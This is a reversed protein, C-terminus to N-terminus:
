IPLVCCVLLVVPHWVQPPPPRMAQGNTPPPPPQKMSPQPSPASRPAPRSGAPPRSPANHNQPVLPQSSNSHRSPVQKGVSSRNAPGGNSPPYPGSGNERPTDHDSKAEEIDKRFEKQFARAGAEMYKETEHLRVDQWWKQVVDRAAKLRRIVNSCEERRSAMKADEEVWTDVTGEPNSTCMATYLKGLIEAKCPELMSLVIAKPVSHSITRGVDQIYKETRKMVENILYDDYLTDEMEVARRQYNSREAKGLITMAMHEQAAKRKSFHDEPPEDEKKSKPTKAESRAGESTESTPSLPEELSGISDDDRPSEDAANVPKIPGMKRFFSVTAYESQAKILDKVLAQANEKLEQLAEVAASSLQEKAIPFRRFITDDGTGRFLQLIIEHVADVCHLSPAEMKKVAKSLIVRLANEPSVLFPQTSSFSMIFDRFSEIEFFDQFSEEVQKPLQKTFEDTIKQGSDSNLSDALSDAFARCLSIVSTSSTVNLQTFRDKFLDLDDKSPDGIVDEPALEREEELEEITSDSVVCLLSKLEQEAALQREGLANGLKMIDMLKNSQQARVFLSHLTHRSMDTNRIGASDAVNVAAQVVKSEGPKM